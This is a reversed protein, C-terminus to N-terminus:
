AAKKGERNCVVAGWPFRRFIGGIGNSKGRRGTSAPIIGDLQHAAGCPRGDAGGPINQGALHCLLRGQAIALQAHHDIIGGTVLQAGPIEVDDGFNHGSGVALFCFAIIAHQGPLNGLCQRCLLHGCLLCIQGLLIGVANVLALKGCLSLQIGCLSLQIGCLSLQIGCPGLQRGLSGAM